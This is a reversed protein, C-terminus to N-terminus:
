SLEMRAGATAHSSGGVQGFGPPREVDWARSGLGSEPKDRGFALLM